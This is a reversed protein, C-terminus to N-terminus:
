LHKKSHGKDLNNYGNYVDLIDEDSIYCPNSIKRNTTPFMTIINNTNPITAVRFFNLNKGDVSVGINKYHFIYTDSFKDSFTGPFNCNLNEEKKAFDINRAADFFLQNINYDKYFVSGTKKNPKNDPTTHRTKIHDLAKKPNYNLYQQEKYNLRSPIEIKKDTNVKLLIQIRRFFNQVYKSQEKTKIDQFNKDKNEKWLNYLSDYKELKIYIDALMKFICFYNINQVKLIGIAEKFNGRQNYIKALIANIEPDTKDFDLYGKLLMEAKRFNGDEISTKVETLIRCKIENKM